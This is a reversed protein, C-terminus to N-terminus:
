KGLIDRRPSLGTICGECLFLLPVGCTFMPACPTRLRSKVSGVGAEMAGCGAARRAQKRVSFVTQM